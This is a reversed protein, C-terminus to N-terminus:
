PNSSFGPYFRRPLYYERAFNEYATLESPTFWDRLVPFKELMDLGKRSEEEADEMKIKLFRVISSIDTLTIKDPEEMLGVSLMHTLIQSIEKPSQSM